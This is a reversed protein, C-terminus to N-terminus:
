LMTENTGRRFWLLTNNRVASEGASLWFACFVGSSCLFIWCLRQLLFMAYFCLSPCGLWSLLAPTVVTSSLLPYGQAEQLSFPHESSRFDRGPSAKVTATQTVSIFLHICGVSALLLLCFCNTNFSFSSGTEWWM